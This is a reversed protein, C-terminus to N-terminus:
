IQIKNNFNAFFTKIKKLKSMYKQTVKEVEQIILPLLNLKLKTWKM